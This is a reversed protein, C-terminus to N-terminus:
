SSIQRLQKVRESVTERPAYPGPMVFVPIGAIERGVAGAGPFKGLMVTATKKFTFVILRPQFRELRAVLLTRGHAFEEPRVEAASQTPRKVIDTFGVDAAFAADDEWGDPEGVVRATRLRAFFQQGLQGQYYHGAAVSRPAPNIGICVARLDDRLLDALTEVEVGM